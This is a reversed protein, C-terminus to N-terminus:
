RTRSRVQERPVLELTPKLNRYVPDWPAPQEWQGTQPNKWAEVREATAGGGRSSMMMSQQQLQRQNRDNHTSFYSCFAYIAISGLIMNRPRLFQELFMQFGTTAQQKSRPRRAHFLNAGRQENMLNPAFRQRELEIDYLHRKTKNTLISAAHSIQKFREANEKKLADLTQECTTTNNNNNNNNRSVDPHTELSLKRFRAKIEEGSADRAVNLTEYHNKKSSLSSSLWSGVM